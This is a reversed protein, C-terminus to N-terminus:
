VNQDGFAVVSTRPSDVDTHCCGLTKLQVDTTQDCTNKVHATAATMVTAYGASFDRAWTVRYSGTGSRCIAGCVNYSVQCAISGCGNWFAWAQAVSPARRLTGPAIFKDTCTGAEVEALSAASAGGGAAAWSMVGGTTSTLAMGNCAAYAAPLTYTTNGTLAPTKFGVFNAAEHIRLEGVCSTNVIAALALSGDKFNICGGDANIEVDGASDLTLDGASDIDVTGDATIQINAAAANDDTTVLSFAGHTGATMVITDCASGTMTVVKGNIAVDDVVLATLCGLSTVNAQAATQLTGTLTGSFGTATVLGSSPNYYLNGDMELGHSGTSTGADAVFTILNNENTSENDTVTVTAGSSAGIDSLVNAGTRYDVNGSGDLVLFKDTDTGAAAVTGLNIGATATILGTITTAPTITVLPTSTNFVMVDTSGRVISLADAVSDVLKIENEGSGGTFLLDSNAPLTLGSATISAETNGAIQLHLTTGGVVNIYALCGDHNGLALYDTIPAAANHIDLEANTSNSGRTWDTAIDGCPAIHMQNSPGLGIVFAHRDADATSWRMGVDNAQGFFLTGV